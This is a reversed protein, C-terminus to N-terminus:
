IQKTNTISHVSEEIEEIQDEFNSKRKTTDKVNSNILAECTTPTRYRFYERRKAEQEAKLIESQISEPEEDESNYPVTYAFENEDDSSQTPTKGLKKEVERIRKEVEKEEDALQKLESDLQREIEKLNQM